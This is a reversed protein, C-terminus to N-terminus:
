IIILDYPMNAIRRAGTATTVYSDTSILRTGDALVLNPHINFRMGPVIQTKEGHIIKPCEVIDLGASHGIMNGTGKGGYGSDALIKEVLDAITGLDVGPKMADAAARQAIGLHKFADIVIKSPEGLYIQHTVESFYGGETMAEVLVVTQDGPKFRKRELVAEFVDRQIPTKGTGVKIFKGECALEDCLRVAALIAESELAGAKVGEVYKFFIQENIRQSKECLAIEEDSLVSRVAMLDQSFDVFDVGNMHAAVSSFLKYSMSSPTIGVRKPKFTMMREALAKGPDSDIEAVPISFADDVGNLEAAHAANYSYHGYFTLPGDIPLFASEEWISSYYDTLYRLHGRQDWRESGTVLLIDINKEQMRKRVAVKRRQMGKKSIAM